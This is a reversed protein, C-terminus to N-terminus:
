FFIRHCWYIWLICGYLWIAAYIVQPTLLPHDGFFSIFALKELSPFPPCLQTGEITERLKWRSCVHCGMAARTVKVSSLDFAPEKPKVPEPAPAPAPAPAAAAPKKVDKKPAM